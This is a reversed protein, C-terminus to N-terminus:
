GNRFSKLAYNIHTYGAIRDAIRDGYKQAWQERTTFNSTLITFLRRNYRAELCEAFPQYRNGFELVETPEAGVDDILLVPQTTVIEWSSESHLCIDALNNATVSFKKYAFPTQNLLQAISTLLVSKGIGCPGSIILGTTPRSGSLWEVVMRCIGEFEESKEVQRGDAAVNACFFRMLLQQADDLSLASLLSVRKSTRISRQLETNNDAIISGITRM